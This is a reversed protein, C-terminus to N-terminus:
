NKLNLIRNAIMNSVIFSGEKNLHFTDYFHNDEKLSYNQLDIFDVNTTQKCFAIIKNKVVESSVVTLERRRTHEPIWVLIVKTGANSQNKIFSLTNNFGNYDILDDPQDNLEQLRKINMKDETFKKDVPYFGLFDRKHSHTTNGSLLYSLGRKFLRSDYAYKVVGHLEWFSFESDYKKLIGKIESKRTVPLLQERFPIESLTSFHALDINQILIQPRENYALYTNYKDLQLNQPAGDFSLNFAELGLKDQLIQPDYSVKGRSSGMIILEANIEGNVIQEWEEFYTHTGSVLTLDVFKGLVLNLIVLLGVLVFVYTLFVKM